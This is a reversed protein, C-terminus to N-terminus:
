VGPVGALADELTLDLRSDGRIRRDIVSVAMPVQDLLASGRTVTVTVSPLAYISDRTSDPPVQASAVLPVVGLLGVMLVPRM